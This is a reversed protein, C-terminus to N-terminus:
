RRQPIRAVDQKDTIIQDECGYWSCVTRLTGLTHETDTATPSVTAIVAIRAGPATFNVKLARTLLNARFPVHEKKSVLARMCEKLAYISANIEAGEKQREVSHHNSDEKRESGACDVMVLRGTQQGEKSVCITTVCHSRSSTANIATSAVARRRKANAFVALLEAPNSPSAEVAGTIVVGGDGSDSFTVLGGASSLLDRGQKGIIELVTVEVRAFPDDALSRFLDAAMQQEISTMTHTKGSGTQGYMLVLGVTGCVQGAAFVLDRAAEEYVTTNTDTDSFAASTPFAAHVLQMGVMDAQMLANHVVVRSLDPLVKVVDFEGEQLEYEFLPRKRVYIQVATHRLRGATVKNLFNTKAIAATFAARNKLRSTRKDFNIRTNPGSDQKKVVKTRKAANGSQARAPPPPILAALADQRLDPMICATHRRPPPIEPPSDARTGSRLGGPHSPAPFVKMTVNPSQNPLPVGQVSDEVDEAVMEVVASSLVTEENAPSPGFVSVCQLFQQNKTQMESADSTTQSVESLRGNGRLSSQHTIEELTCNMRARRRAKILLYLMIAMGCLAVLLVGGMMVLGWIPIEVPHNFGKWFEFIGELFALVAPPPSPSPSPSSVAM